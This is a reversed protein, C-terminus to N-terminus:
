RQIEMRYIRGLNQLDAEWGVGIERRGRVRSHYGGSHQWKSEGSKDGM